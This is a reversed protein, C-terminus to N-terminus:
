VIQRKGATKHSCIISLHKYSGSIKFLHIFFQILFSKVKLFM